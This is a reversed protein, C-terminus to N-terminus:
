LAAEYFLLNRRAKRYLQKMSNCYSSMKIVTKIRLDPLFLYRKKARCQMRAVLLLVAIYISYKSQLLVANYLLEIVVILKKTM